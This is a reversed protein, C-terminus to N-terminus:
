QILSTQATLYASLDRAIRDAAHGDWLEPRKSPRDASSFTLAASLAQRIAIPDSGAIQNTGESVTIPRETNDRLTICPVGLATTEEQLGGSDTLVARSNKILGLMELYGLPPLALLHPQDFFQSLGAARIKEQTRPHVPFIIPIEVACAALTDLISRLV